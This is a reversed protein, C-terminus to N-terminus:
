SITELPKISGKEVFEHQNEDLLKLILTMSNKVTYYEKTAFFLVGISGILTIISVALQVAGSGTETMHQFQFFYSIASIMLLGFFCLGGVFARRVEKYRHKAFGAYDEDKLLQKDKYLMNSQDRNLQLQIIKKVTERDAM